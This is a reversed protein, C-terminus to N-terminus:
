SIRLFLTAPGGTVISKGMNRWTGALASGSVDRSDSLRLSSGAVTASENITAGSQNNCFAFTGVSATTFGATLTGVGGWTPAAGSGGSTLVQGSTGYNAGGIGLQGASAIRFREAGNAFFLMPYTSASLITNAGDGHYMQMGVTGDQRKFQVGGSRDAQAPNDGKLELTTIGTSIRTPNDTGIGVDGASTIRMREAGATAVAVTDAAPFFIGTNTDEGQVAPTGASGNTGSIGSTGNITVTM